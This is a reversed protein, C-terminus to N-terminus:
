AAAPGGGESKRKLQLLLHEDKAVTEIASRLAKEIEMAADREDRSEFPPPAQRLTQTLWEFRVEEDADRDTRGNLAAYEERLAEWSRARTSEMEFPADTLIQDARYGTFSQALHEVTMEGAERGVKILEHDELNGVMLPSHSTAIVQLNPFHAKLAPVLNMQWDPHLHSDVEDILLLARQDAPNADSTYIESLRQILIGSWGITSNMGQSVYDLPIEGDSTALLIDFTETDCRSFRLDFGPTLADVLAFFRDIARRYRDRASSPLSRDESRVFSNYIWRRLSIGRDDVSGRILPLVDSVQPFPFVEEATPDFGAAPPVGRIAPFGFAALTGAQLPATSARVILRGQALLLHSSYTTYITGSRLTLIISGSLEGRRLLTRGAAIAEDDMGALAFAIARLVTSKGAGNNGLILTWPKPFEFTAEKFPGINVLDLRVIQSPEPASPALTKADRVTELGTRVRQALEHTFSGIARPHALRILEINYRDSFREARLEFDPRDLVLAFHRRAPPSPGIAECLAEIMQTSYGLFFLTRTDFLARLTSRLTPASDLSERLESMTVTAWEPTSLDGHLKLIFPNTERVLTTFDHDSHPTLSLAKRSALARELLDDFNTTLFGSFPVKEVLEQLEPPTEVGSYELGVELLFGIDGLRSQLLEAVADYEGQDLLTRMGRYRDPSFEGSWRDILKELIQRWTPLGALVGIGGGAFLVCSGSACADVLLDPVEDTQVRYEDLLDRAARASAAAADVAM